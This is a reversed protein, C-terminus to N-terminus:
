HIDSKIPKGPPIDLADAPDVIWSDIKQGLDFIQQQLKNRGTVPDVEPKPRFTPTQELQILWHLYRIDYSLQLLALWDKRSLPKKSKGVINYDASLCHVLTRRLWKVRRADCHPTRLNSLASNIDFRQYTPPQQQSSSESPTAMNEGLLM